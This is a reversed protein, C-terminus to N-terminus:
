CSVAGKVAAIRLVSRDIADREIRGARVASELADLTAGLADTTIWLAVDVGASIAKVVAQPVSYLDSIAGMGSLDDTFILGKFPQAGYGAGTRLLNVAAPSLSAPLGPETLGPVTLHGLMVGVNPDDVAARFPILDDTKLEALPPTTVGNIHSDGSAHGHGPFHKFVPMIGADELGAAFAQSYKAVRHPDGSFSRDGIVEGAPGDNVDADPAFDVTIGAAAMATGVRKAEARVQAPTMTQALQRASALNAGTFRSVRGGEEDISVMLPVKGLASIEDFMGDDLMGTNTWSGFFIGGVQYDRVAARADAAGTVGVVLMQALKQRLTLTRLFEAEAGCGAVPTAASAARASSSAPPPVSSSAGGVGAARPSSAAPSAASEPDGATACGALLATVTLSM